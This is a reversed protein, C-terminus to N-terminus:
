LGTCSAAESELRETLRSSSRPVKQTVYPAQPALVGAASLGARGAEGLGAPLRRRRRLAHAPLRVPRLGRRRQLLLGGALESGRCSHAPPKGSLVPLHGARKLATLGLGLPSDDGSCVWAPGPRNVIRERRERERGRERDREYVCVCVCVSVCSVCM